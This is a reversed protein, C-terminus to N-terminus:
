RGAVIINVFSMSSFGPKLIVKLIDPVNRSCACIYLGSTIVQRWCNSAAPLFLYGPRTGRLFRNDSGPWSTRRRRVPLFESVLDGQVPAFHLVKEAYLGGRESVGLKHEIVIDGVDDGIHSVLRHEALFSVIHEAAFVALEDGGVGDEACFCAIEDDDGSVPLKGVVDGESKGMRGDGGFKVGLVDGFDVAFGDEEAVVILMDALMDPFVFADEFEPFFEGTLQCFVLADFHCVGGLNGFQEFVGIAGDDINVAQRGGGPGVGRSVGKAPEAVFGLLFEEGANLCRSFFALVAPPSNSVLHLCRM